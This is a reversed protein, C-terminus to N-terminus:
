FVCYLYQFGFKSGRWINNLYTVFIIIKKMSMNNHENSTVFADVVEENLIRDM